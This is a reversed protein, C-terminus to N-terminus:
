PESDGSDQARGTMITLDLHGGRMEECARDYLEMADYDSACHVVFRVSSGVREIELKRKRERKSLKM